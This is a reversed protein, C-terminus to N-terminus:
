GKILLILPEEYTYCPKLLTSCPHFQSKLIKNIKKIPLGEYHPAKVRPLSTIAEQVEKLTINM